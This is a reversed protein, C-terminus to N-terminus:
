SRRPSRRSSTWYNKGVSALSGAEFRGTPAYIGLRFDCKLDGRMATWRAHLICSCPRRHRQQQGASRTGSGAVLDRQLGDLSPFSGGFAYSGGLLEIATQYFALFRIPSSRPTWIRSIQGAIPLQFGANAKYFVFFNALV